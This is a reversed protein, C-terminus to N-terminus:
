TQAWNCALKRPLNKCPQYLTKLRAERPLPVLDPGPQLFTVCTFPIVVSIPRRDSEGTSDHVTNLPKSNGCLNGSVFMDDISSDEDVKSDAKRRPYTYRRPEGEREDTTQLGLSLMLEQHLADEPRENGQRDDSYLVANM